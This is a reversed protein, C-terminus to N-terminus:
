RDDGSGKAAPKEAGSSRGLGIKKALVRRREAYAPAVMPYDRPLGWRARYEEPSLNFRNRLYRKLMQMKAGDELCVLYDQKISARVPVAPEPAVIEAPPTASAELAAFVSQILAPLDSPPVNNHSVHASVIAATLTILDQDAM